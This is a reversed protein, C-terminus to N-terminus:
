PHKCYSGATYNGAATGATPLSTGNGMDGAFGSSDVCFYTSDTLQEYATYGAGATAVTCVATHGTQTNAATLLKAVDADVCVGTGAGATGYTNAGTGNYYIEASARISSMSAKASADKGKNRATNLSALVIASLIGIIAIVVLLEILTFGKKFKQM